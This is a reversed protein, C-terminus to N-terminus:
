RMISVRARLNIRPLEQDPEKGFSLQNLDKSGPADSMLFPGSPTHESAPLGGGLILLHGIEHAVSYALIRRFSAPDYPIGVTQSGIYEEALDAVFVYCGRQNENAVRIREDVERAPSLGLRHSRIERRHTYQNSLDETNLVTAYRSWLGLRIFDALDNDNRALELMKMPHRYDAARFVGYIANALIDNGGEEVPAERLWEDDLVNFRGEVRPKPNLWSLQAHSIGDIEYHRPRSFPSTTDKFYTV